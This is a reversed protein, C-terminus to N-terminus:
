FLSVTLGLCMQRHPSCISWCSATPLTPHLSLQRPGSLSLPVPVQPLLAGCLSHQVLRVQKM